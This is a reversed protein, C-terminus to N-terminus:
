CFSDYINKTNDIGTFLWLGMTLIQSLFLGSIIIVISGYFAGFTEEEIFIMELMNIIMAVIWTTHIMSAWKKYSYHFMMNNYPVLLGYIMSGLLAIISIIGLFKFKKDDEKFFKIICIIAGILFLISTLLNGVVIGQDAIGKGFILLILWLAIGIAGGAAGIISAFDIIIFM